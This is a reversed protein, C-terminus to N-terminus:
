IFLPKYDNELQEFSLNGIFRGFSLWTALGRLDKFHPPIFKPDEIVGLDHLQSILRFDDISIKGVLLLHLQDIRGLQIAVRILNYVLVFGKIYAIDKTFPLGTATSGRFVRQTLTYSDDKSLGQAIYDRYIDVFEAGDIVKTIGQIRNVLKALRRPTSKLTIIETLVALGEQTVTSSPTGKSLCTLYPQALGNQTTGVHIWGEHVELIDLERQSFKVDQNLKINDAGAAADSVIGDSLIVEVNIGPMSQKVQEALIKVADVAEINKPDDPLIDADLMSKLPQELMTALEALSPEGAHFLDKPHGFLEVSLDHFEPTGRYEIMSLVTKYETCMKSMYQAIPNLQGLQSIIDRNLDSFARRLDSPVFGLDRQQYYAQDVTPNKQCKHKFFEEKIQKDWNIADLIRIPTQLAILRDSLERTKTLLAKDIM